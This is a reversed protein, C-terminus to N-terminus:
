HGDNLEKRIDVVKMGASNAAEIGADGDEFVICFQPEVKMLEACRLFTDPAPKGREVDEKGVLIDFYQNLGVKKVVDTSHNKPSGTGISMPLKGFYRHVVEVVEPIIKVMDLRSLYGEEKLKSHYLPDFDLNHDRNIIRFIEESPVGAYKYFIEDTFDFGKASCVEQWAIKHVPMSDVLTGDLDFILGKVNEPIHIM